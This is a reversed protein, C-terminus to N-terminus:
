HIKDETEFKWKLLGTQADVAYLYDDDSGFYVVGDSIAQTRTVSTVLTSNASGMM